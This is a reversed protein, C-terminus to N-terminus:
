QKRYRIGKLFFWPVGIFDICTILLWKKKSGRIKEAPLHYLFHWAVLKSFIDLALYGLLFKRYPHEAWRTCLACNHSHQKM